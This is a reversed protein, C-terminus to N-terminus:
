LDEDRAMLLSVFMRRVNWFPKCICWLKSLGNIHYQKWSGINRKAYHLCVLRLDIVGVLYGLNLYTLNCVRDQWKNRSIRRLQTKLQFSTRGCFLFLPISKPNKYVFPKILFKECSQNILATYDKHTYTSCFIHCISSKYFGCIGWFYLSKVYLRHGNALLSAHTM